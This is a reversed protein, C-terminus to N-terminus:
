GLNNNCGSKRNWGIWGCIERVKQPTLRIVVNAVKNNIASSLIGIIYRNRRNRLLAYVGAGSCGRTADCKNLIVSRYSSSSPAWGVPCSSYWMSNARKDNPFCAFHMTGTTLVKLTKISFAKMPLYPRGHLLQLTLVAYDYEPKMPKVKYWARPLSMKKVRFKSFRGNAQLVHVHLARKKTLFRRGDHFCHAASLVHRPGILVGSCSEQVNMTVKVVARFPMIQTVSAKVHIRDDPGVIIRKYNLNKDAASGPIAPIPQIHPSTEQPADHHNSTVGIHFSPTSNNTKYDNKSEKLPM